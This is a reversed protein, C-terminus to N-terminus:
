YKPHPIVGESWRTLIKGRQWVLFGARSHENAFKEFEATFLDENFYNLLMFLKWCRKKFDNKVHVKHMHQGGGAKGLFDPMVINDNMWLDFLMNHGDVDDISNASYHELFDVTGTIFCYRGDTLRIPYNHQKIGSKGSGAKYLVMEGKIQKIFGEVTLLKYLRDTHATRKHIVGRRNLEFPQMKSRHIYDHGNRHWLAAWGGCTPTSEGLRDDDSNIAELRLAARNILHRNGWDRLIEAIDAETYKELHSINLTATQM